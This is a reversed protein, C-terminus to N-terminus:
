EILGARSIKPLNSFKPAPWNLWVAFAYGVINADPVMGQLEPHDIPVEWYRSDASYDRNDGLVFYYGDPVTWTKEYVFADFKKKRITYTKGGLTEQYLVSTGFSGKEDGILKQAVPVDNIIITKDKTYTVTDGPLGIVRKIYDIKPNNPYRFVMVDGREPQKITVAKTNIAPLRLGYIFKNVVIFDGEILTPRMSGSPIQFPEVLFSRLLLVVFLVPFLSKGLEVLYPSKNLKVWAEDTEDAYPRHELYAKIAKERKPKFYFDCLAFIGLVATVLVLILPFDFEM